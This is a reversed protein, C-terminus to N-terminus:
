MPLPDKKRYAMGQFIAVLQGPEDTVRVTYTALRPNRSTELADAYLTGGTVAQVYSISVNIAVAVTGYSNCAAAFAYDALSFIAGGHVTGLSNLHQDGVVMRALASGEGVQMLEIGLHKALRDGKRFYAAIDEM